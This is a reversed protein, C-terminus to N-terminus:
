REILLQQNRRRTWLFVALTMTILLLVSGSSDSMTSTSCYGSSQTPVPQEAWDATGDPVLAM